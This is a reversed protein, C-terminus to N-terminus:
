EAGKTKIFHNIRDIAVRVRGKATKAALYRKQYKLPWIYRAKFIAANRVVYECPVSFLREAAEYELGLVRRAKGFVDFTENAVSKPRSGTLICAWGGICAATGCSTAWSEQEYRKPEALIHEQIKRLLRVNM